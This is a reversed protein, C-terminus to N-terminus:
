VYLISVAVFLLSLVIENNCKNGSNPSKTTSPTTSNTVVENPNSIIPKDPLANSKFSTFNIYKPHDKIALGYLMGQCFLPSALNYVTKSSKIFTFSYKDVHADTINETFLGSGSLKSVYTCNALRSVNHTSSTNAVKGLFPTTSYIHAVEKSYQNLSVSVTKVQYQRLPNGVTELYLQSYNKIFDSANNLFTELSISRKVTIAMHKTVFVSLAEEKNLTKYIDDLIDVFQQHKLFDTLSVNLQLYFNNLNESAIGLDNAFTQLKSSNVKDLNKFVGNLPIFSLMETFNKKTVNSVTKLNTLSYNGTSLIKLRAVDNGYAVAAMFEPLSVNIAKLSNPVMEEPNSLNTVFNNYIESFTIGFLQLYYLTTNVTMNTKMIADYVRTGNLKLSDSAQSLITTPFKSLEAAVTTNALTVSCNKIPCMTENLALKTFFDMLLEKKLHFKLSAVCAYQDLLSAQRWQVSQFETHIKNATLLTVFLCILMKFVM